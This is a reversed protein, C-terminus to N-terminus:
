FQQVVKNLFTLEINEHPYYSGLRAPKHMQLQHQKTHLCSYRLVDDM